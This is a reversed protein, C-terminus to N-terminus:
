EAAIAEYGEPVTVGLAECIAANYKKTFQPAYEIPMESINAEGTLIKAAMKGTAVGLDYYSISLTAVGCGSCIGEEGAIVPVGAPQCINNVIETNAAVTNDTPVYIVDSNSAANTAITALDNSDSFSYYECTYGLEELAAKVTDVQYQSNAEASCYLLGVKQADPFLEKLMAAQEDLPALDSTGSINGGVTGDFDSIGLAVGYETVSTGLVPIENTGAQAAQLAPTANALILDVNSSVFSNIITSCTNSDGQANQEDFTVADGLAETLADKFGQTAADLADHQVLQCIGVTYSADGTAEAAAETTTEEAAEAATTAAETAAASTEAPKSSCATMSLAMAGALVLSMIKSTKRM